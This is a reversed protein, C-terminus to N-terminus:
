IDACFILLLRETMVGSPYKVYSIKEEQGEVNGYLSIVQSRLTIKSAIFAETIEVTCKTLSSISEPTLVREWSTNKRSM